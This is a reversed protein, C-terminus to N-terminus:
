LVADRGRAVQHRLPQRVVGDILQQLRRERQDAGDFLDGALQPLAPLLEPEREDGHMLRVHGREARDDLPEPVLRALSPRGTAFLLGILIFLTTAVMWIAAAGM